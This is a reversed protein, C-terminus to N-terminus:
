SKLFSLWAVTSRKWSNEHAWYYKEHSSFQVEHTSSPTLALFVTLIPTSHFELNPDGHGVKDVVFTNQYYKQIQPVIIWQM